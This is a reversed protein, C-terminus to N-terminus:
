VGPGRVDGSFRSSSRKGGLDSGEWVELELEAAGPQQTDGEDKRKIPNRSKSVM